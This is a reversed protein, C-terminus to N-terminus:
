RNKLNFMWNLVGSNSKVEEIQITSHWENNKELELNFALSLGDVKRYDSYVLRSENLPNSMDRKTVRVEIYKRVDVYYDLEFNLDTRVRIVHCLNDDVRATGIYKITKGKKFPYLLHSSFEADNALERIREEDSILEAKEGKNSIHWANKGDYSYVIEKKYNSIEIRLLNPKKHVAKYTFDGDTNKIKGKIMLSNIKEWTVKGGLGEKYYRDLILGLKSQYLDPMAMDRLSNSYTYGDPLLRNVATDDASKVEAIVGVNIALFILFYNM